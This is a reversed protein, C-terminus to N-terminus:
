LMVINDVAISFQVVRGGNKLLLLEHNDRLFEGAMMIRACKTVM